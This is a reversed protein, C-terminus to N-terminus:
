KCRLHYLLCDSWHWKEEMHQQPIKCHIMVTEMKISPLKCKSNCAPGDPEWNPRKAHKNTSTMWFLYIKFCGRGARKLSAATRTARNRRPRM